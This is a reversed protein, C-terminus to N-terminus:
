LGQVRLEIRRNVARGDRTDNDAIPSTEGYGVATLREATIGKAILYSVVANARAESLGQNMSADGVSDTHGGVEIRASPCKAATAALQDLLTHSAADINASSTAFLITSTSLAHNFEKQCNLAAVVPKPTTAPKPKPAFIETVATFGGSLPALTSADLTNKLAIDKANGKVILSLDDVRTLGHKLQSLNQMGRSFAARWGKAHGTGITLKDVIKASDFLKEAESLVSGHEEEDPVHGSLVVTSGDYDAQTIYPSVSTLVELNNTVTRVGYIDAAIRGADEKAALSPAIGNLTIERGDTAVNAWSYSNETLAAQTRSVLDTQIEPTHTRLCLWILLALALLALLWKWLNNM